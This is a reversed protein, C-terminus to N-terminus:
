SRRLVEDVRSVLSTRSFPKSLFELGEAVVGQTAIIDATYGSVFLVKIAPHLARVKESLIRGNMVPMMVDTVLLHIPGGTTSAVHLAQDTTTAGLVVYGQEELWRTSIALIQAEDEVLLVTESRRALPPQASPDAIVDVDALCRPFYLLFTTGVGPESQVAIGGGYQKVIGHVTSLGMGTGKGLAKTTYFPEFIREVTAADMGSGTDRHSLRVYEGPALDAPAQPDGAEVTVNTLEVTITGAGEMADRANAMLNLLVQDAQSPDIKINWLGEDSQMEFAVHKGIVRELLSASAVITSYLNVVKPTAPQRRSFALLQKVLDAARRSAHMVEGMDVAAQSGEPMNAMALETYGMVVNLMNNFDHAIGGALQGITEVKRSQQLDTELKAHAAAMAKAVTIDEKVAVYGTTAGDTRIPSISAREWFLEGNKRRNHLEGTWERGGTLAAWMQRYGDPPMEGSKLIRPNQGIAEESTYGTVATFKTNVYEITGTADTMVISAPSQEVALSMLRLTHESRRRETIDRIIATSFRADGRTWHALTMEIPFEAGDRRLGVLELLGGRPLTPRGQAARRIGQLHADRYRAPMLQGLSAGLMEAETFGFLAEAAPNWGTVHGEADSTVVADNVANLVARYVAGQEEMKKILAHNSLALEVALHLDRETYPKVVFGLPRAPKARDLTAADSFATAFIVPIDWRARIIMAAEIGNMLGKLHIDMLILDPRLREAQTIADEGSDTRGVCTYGLSTLLAILHLGVIAEDEVVLITSERM